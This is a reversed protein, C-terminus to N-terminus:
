ETAGTLVSQLTAQDQISPKRIDPGFKVITVAFLLTAFALLVGGVALNRGKRRRHLDHQERGLM